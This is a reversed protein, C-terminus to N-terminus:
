AHAALAHTFMAAEALLGNLTADEVPEDRDLGHALRYGAACHEAEAQAESAAARLVDVNRTARHLRFADARMVDLTYDDVIMHDPTDFFARYADECRDAAAIAQKAADNLNITTYM